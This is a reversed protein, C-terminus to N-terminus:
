AHTHTHTYAYAHAHQGRALRLRLPDRGLPGGVRMTVRPVGLMTWPPPRPAAKVWICRRKGKAIYGVPLVGNVRKGRRSIDDRSGDMSVDPCEPSGALPAGPAALYRGIAGRSRRLTNKLNDVWIQGHGMKSSQNAPESQLARCRSISPKGCGTSCSTLKDSAASCRARYERHYPRPPIHLGNLSDLPRGAM